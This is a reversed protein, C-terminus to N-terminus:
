RGVGQTMMIRAVQRKGNCRELQVVADIVGCAYRMIDEHRLQTGSQLIILALQELAGEPSDAHITTLSGPHGTNIARLFTYAESGRLEGLIVRDPRMRLAAQLLDDAAVRAEGLEGKVALLSVSNAHSLQVEPTDEILILREAEPIEKLLANLFTTKGTSTGGSIMINRRTRVLDGLFAALEVPGSGAPADVARLDTKGRSFRTCDFAGQGLFDDLTLDPVVHKRIALALAGRTAPPAVIQVRAGDPLTAALLPHERSIGQHSLSAIQRALQWLRPEDIEPVDHREMAGGITEVWVEGPRNVFLDTVEERALIPLLPALYADIYRMGTEPVALHLNENKRVM